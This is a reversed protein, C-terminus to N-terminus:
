HYCWSTPCTNTPVLVAGIQQELKISSEDNSVCRVPPFFPHSVSRRLSFFFTLWCTWFSWIQGLIAEIEMWTCVYHLSTCTPIAVTCLWMRMITNPLHWNEHINQSANLLRMKRAKSKPHRCGDLGSGNWTNWGLLSVHGVQVRHELLTPRQAPAPSRASTSERDAQLILRTIDVRSSSVGSSKANKTPLHRGERQGLVM